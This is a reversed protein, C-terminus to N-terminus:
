DHNNRIPEEELSVFENLLETDVSLSYHLAWYNFSVFHKIQKRNQNESKRKFFRLSFSLKQYCFNSM